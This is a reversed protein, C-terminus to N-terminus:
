DHGCHVACHQVHQWYCTAEWIGMAPVASDTQHARIIVPAFILGEGEGAVSLTSLSVKAYQHGTEEM